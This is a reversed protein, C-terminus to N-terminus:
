SMAANAALHRHTQHCWVVLRLWCPIKESVLVSVLVSVLCLVRPTQVNTKTETESESKDVESEEILKEWPLTSFGSLYTSLVPPM